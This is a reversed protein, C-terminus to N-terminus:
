MYHVTKFLVLMYGQASVALEIDDAGEIQPDAMQQIPCKHIKNFPSNVSFNYLSSLRNSYLNISHVVPFLLYAM